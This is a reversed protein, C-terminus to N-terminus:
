KIDMNRDHTMDSAVNGGGQTRRVILSNSVGVGGASPRNVTKGYIAMQTSSGGDLNMAQVAGLRSMLRALEPLTMGVSVGPHRGDVTVLLLHGDRTIGAASRPERFGLGVNSFREEQTDIYPQGDRLLWPGGGIAHKMGSWDPLTYVNVNLRRDPGLSSLSLMELTSPGSIVMGDPPIALPSQTSFAAVHNDRLQVQLGGAPLPPAVRGWRPTYVVTENNKVRPQNVNNLPLTGGYPLRIEGVLRVQEMVLENGPSIGLAVRNYLPGAVLEQDIMLIGLPVGTDPKFFSGNIGAMAQYGSVIRGVSEKAGMRNIALAPRIEVEPHRPDIELVQVRAPGAGTREILSVHRVGPGIIKAASLRNYEHPIDIVLRNLGAKVSVTGSQARRIFLQVKGQRNEAYVASLNSWPFTKRLPKGALGPLLGPFSITLPKGPTDVVGLEPPPSGWPVILRTVSVREEIQLPRVQLARLSGAQATPGQGSGSVQVCLVGLLGATLLRLLSTRMGFGVGLRSGSRGGSVNTRHAVRVRDTRM